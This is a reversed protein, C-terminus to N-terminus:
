LDLRFRELNNKGFQRDFYYLVDAIWCRRYWYYLRNQFSEFASYKRGTSIEVDPWRSLEHYFTTLVSTIIRLALEKGKCIRQGKGFAMCTKTASFFQEEDYNGNSIYNNIDETILERNLSNAIDPSQIELTHTDHFLNSCQTLGKDNAVVPIERFIAQLVPYHHAVVTVAYRMLRSDCSIKKVLDNKNSSMELILNSMAEVIELAPTIFFEMAIVTCLEQSSLGFDRQLSILDSHQKVQKMFARCLTIRQLWNPDINYTFTVSISQTLQTISALDAETPEVTFILEWMIACVLSRLQEDSVKCEQTSDLQLERILKTAYKAAVLESRLVINERDMIYQFCGFIREWSRSENGTLDLPLLPYVFAAFFYFSRYPRTPLSIYKSVLKMDCKKTFEGNVRSESHVLKHCGLPAGQLQPLRLLKATFLRVYWFVGFILSLSWLQLKPVLVCHGWSAALLTM